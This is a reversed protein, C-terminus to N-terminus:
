IMCDGDLSVRACTLNLSPKVLIRFTSGMHHDLFSNVRHVSRSLEGLRSPCISSIPRKNKTRSSPIPWTRAQEDLERWRLQAVEERRQGTLALFEVIGGYPPHCRARLSYSKPSSRTAWCEIEALNDIAQPFGRRSRRISSPEVWAGAFSLRRRPPNRGVCRLQRLQQPLDQIM